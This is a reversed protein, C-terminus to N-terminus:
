LFQNSSDPDVLAMLAHSNSPSCEGRKPFPNRAPRARVIQRAVGNRRQSGAAMLASAEQKDQCARRHPRGDRRHPPRPTKLWTPSSDSSLNVGAPLQEAVLETRDPIRRYWMGGQFRAFAHSFARRRHSGPPGIRHFPWHCPGPRHGDSGGRPRLAPAPGVPGPATDGPPGIGVPEAAEPAATARAHRTAQDRAYPGGPRNSSAAGDSRPRPPSKAPIGLVDLRGQDPQSTADRRRAADLHDPRRSTGPDDSHGPELPLSEPGSPSVTASPLKSSYGIRQPDRSAHAAAGASERPRSGTPSGVVEHVAPQRHGTGQRGAGELPGTQPRIPGAVVLDREVTVRRGGRLACASVRPGGGSTTRSAVKRFATSGKARAWDRRWPSGAARRQTCARGAPRSGCGARGSSRRDFQEVVQGPRHRREDAALSMTARSSSSRM